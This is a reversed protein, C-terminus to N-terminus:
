LVTDVVQELDPLGAEETPDGLPEQVVDDPAPPAPEGLVWRKIEAVAESIAGGVGDAADGTTQAADSTTDAVIDVGHGAADAAEGAMDLAGDAAASSVTLIGDGAVAAGDAVLGGGVGLAGAAFGVIDNAVDVLGFVTRDVFGVVAAVIRRVQEAASSPEEAADEVADVVEGVTHQADGVRDDVPAPQDRAQPPEAPQDPAAEEPPTYYADCVGAVDSDAEHDAAWCTLWAAHETENEVGEVSAKEEIYGIPRQSANQTQNVAYDAAYAYPDEYGPAPGPQAHAEGAATLVLAVVFAVWTATRFRM